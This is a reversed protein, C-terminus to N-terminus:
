KCDALRYTLHQTSTSMEDDHYANGTRKTPFGESDYEYEFDGSSGEGDSYKLVNNKTDEYGLNQLLWKPTNTNSFPSKKDDYLYGEREAYGDANLTYKLTDKIGVEKVSVNITNGNIVFKKVYKMNDFGEVTILDDSSYTIITPDDIKGDTIVSQIKILRNQDDYEFKEIFSGNTTISELLKVKEGAKCSVTKKAIEETIEEAKDQEDAEAQEAAAKEAAAKAEAIQAQAAAKETKEECGLTLTLALALTATLLQKKM